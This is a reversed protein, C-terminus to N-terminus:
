ANAPLHGDPDDGEKLNSTSCMECDDSGRIHSEWIRRHDLAGSHRQAARHVKTQPSLSGNTRLMGSAAIWARTQGFCKEPASASERCPIWRESQIRPLKRHAYSLKLNIIFLGVTLGASLGSVM